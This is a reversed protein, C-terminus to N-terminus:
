IIVRKPKEAIILSVPAKKGEEGGGFVKIKGGHSPVKEWLFTLKKKVKKMRDADLKKM